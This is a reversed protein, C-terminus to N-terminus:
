VRLGEVRGWFLDCNREENFSSERGVKVRRRRPPPPAPEQEPEPDVLYNAVAAAAPAKVAVSAGSKQRGAKRARMAAMIKHRERQRGRQRDLEHQNGQEMKRQDELHRHNAEDFPVSSSSAPINVVDRWPTSSLSRLRPRKVEELLVDLDSYNSPNTAFKCHLKSHMHQLPPFDNTNFTVFELDQFKVRCNECYGPRACESHTSVARSNISAVIGSATSEVFAPAGRVKIEDLYKTVPDRPATVPKAAAAPTAAPITAPTAALAAALTTAPTALDARQIVTVGQPTDKGTRTETGAGLEEKPKNSAAGIRERPEPLYNTLEEYRIFPCRGGRNNRLKPWSAGTDDPKRYERIAIPCHIGTADEVLFYFGKFYYFDSRPVFPDGTLSTSLGFVKEERLLQPLERTPHSISATSNTSVLPELSKLDDTILTKLIKNQLKDLTWVKIGLKQAKDIIDEKVVAPAPTAEASARYVPKAQRNLNTVKVKSSGSPTFGERAPSQASAYSTLRESIPTVKSSLLASNRQMPSTFSSSTAPFPSTASLGRSVPVRFGSHAQKAFVAEPTTITPLVSAPPVNEDHTLSHNPLTRTTILHTCKTSFFPEIFQTPPTPHYSIDFMNHNRKSKLIGAYFAITPNRFDRQPILKAKVVEEVCDFYFRFTPFAKKYARIWKEDRVVIPTVASNAGNVNSPTKRASGLNNGTGVVRPSASARRVTASTLPATAKATAEHQSLGSSDRKLKPLQQQQALFDRPKQPSPQAPSGSLSKHLSTPATLPLNDLNRFPKPLLPKRAAENM